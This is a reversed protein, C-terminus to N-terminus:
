SLDMLSLFTLMSTRGVFHDAPWDACSTPFEQLATPVGPIEDSTSAGPGDCLLVGALWFCGLVSCGTRLSQICTLTRLLTESCAHLNTGRDLDVYMTSEIQMCTLTVTCAIEPLIKM